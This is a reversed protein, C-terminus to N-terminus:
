VRGTIATGLSGQFLRRFADIVKSAGDARMLVTTVLGVTVIGVAVKEVTGMIM